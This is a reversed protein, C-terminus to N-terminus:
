LPAEDGLDLEPARDLAGITAAIDRHRSDAQLEQWSKASRGHLRALRASRLASERHPNDEVVSEAAARDNCLLVVDCGAELALAAQATAGGDLSAGAMGLDDSFVAGAFGLDGRLVHTLWTRSYSAPRADVKSYVVHAALVAPLGYHIMREFVLMDAVRLTELDRDDVPLTLHSDGAVSGHGPFHKGVACMGASGMGAMFARALIAVVQPDRHLARDGIVISERSRLDLAPAFSFDVGCARLEAALLWGCDRTLKVAADRDDDYLAGFCAPAPLRTFQSRFRQVRGGEQDVAVLLRPERLGHIEATLDALQSPDQYNRDFLIVGGTAPHALLERDDAGLRPGPIGLMVPGLAM